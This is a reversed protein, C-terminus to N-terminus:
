PGKHSMPCLETRLFHRPNDAVVHPTPPCFQTRNNEESKKRLVGWAEWDNSGAAHCIYDIHMQLPLKCSNANSCRDPLLLDPVFPRYSATDDISLSRV